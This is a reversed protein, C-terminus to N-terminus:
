SIFKRWFYKRHFLKWNKSSKKQFIRIINKQSPQIQFYFILFSFNWNQFLYFIIFIICIIKNFHFLFISHFISLYQISINQSNSNKRHLSLFTAFIPHLFQCFSLKGWIFSPTFSEISPFNCYVIFQYQPSALANTSCWRVFIPTFRIVANRMGCMCAYICVSVCFGRWQPLTHSLANAAFMEISKFTWWLERTDQIWSM